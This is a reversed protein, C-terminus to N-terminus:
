REAQEVEIACRRAYASRSKGSLRRATAAEECFRAVAAPGCHQMFIDFAPGSLFQDQAEAACAAIPGMPREFAAPIPVPAAAMYAFAWTSTGAVGLGLAALTLFRKAM